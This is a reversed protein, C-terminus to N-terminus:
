KQPSSLKFVVPTQMHSKVPKGDKTAPHFKWKSVAEIARAEFEKRSSRIVKAGIVEGIETVM